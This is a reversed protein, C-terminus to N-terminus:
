PRERMAQPKSPDKPEEWLKPDSGARSGVLPWRILRSEELERTVSMGGFFLFFSPILAPSLSPPLFFPSFCSLLFPKLYVGRVRRQVKESIGSSTNSSRVEKEDM